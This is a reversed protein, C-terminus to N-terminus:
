EESSKRKLEVSDLMVRYWTEFTQGLLTARSCAFETFVSRANAKGRTNDPANYHAAALAILLERVTPVAIGQLSDM